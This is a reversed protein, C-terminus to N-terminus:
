DSNRLERLKETRRITVNPASYISGERVLLHVGCNYAAGILDQQGKMGEDKWGPMNKSLYSRDERMIATGVEKNKVPDFALDFDLERGYLKKTQDAWRAPMIQLLGREGQSGVANPDGGSEVKINDNIFKPTIPDYPRDLAAEQLAQVEREIRSDQDKNRQNLRQMEANARRGEPTQSHPTYTHGSRAKLGTTALVLALSVGLLGATRKKYKMGDEM